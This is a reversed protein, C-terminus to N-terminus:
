PEGRKQGVTKEKERISIKDQERQGIEKKNPAEKKSVNKAEEQEKQARRQEEQMVAQQQQAQASFYQNLKQMILSTTIPMKQQMQQLRQNRYEDPMSLLELTYKEILQYPDMPTTGLEASIENIFLEAKMKMPEDQMVKNARAQYKASIMMAQGEAEAIKAKEIIQLDLAEARSKRIAQIEENYDYGFDDLLRADSLKGMSNLNMALQKSESDDSMKFRKFYVRIPPLGLFTNLKKILFFNLFDELLERYNLFHNEVIRLSISSGTWSTGGKIFELPVGMSNIIIEEQFRLEPTAMLMRANGGMEQYQIPIPMVAIYNPDHKWKKLTSEIESKWKGLSLQSFPDLVTNAPSVVKKPVLHENIIAENGRRLLQLYYIDKIAPLIMPKGWGMDEEALSPYKLHYLNDNDLQIKKKKKLSELFILPIDALVSRDNSLIKSKLKQPIDYYYLCRGTLPNYDITINEPALRVLRFNEIASIPRDTANLGVKTTKCKPCTGIFSFGKLSVDKFEDFVSEYKCHTCQLFRKEKMMVTIFSNGYTFYDLGVEILFSKIHLHENFISDYKKKIEKSINSEYLIDTIPYETLKTIVNRLFGNTYYYDRCFKFLTKINKPVYNNALDFFPNPYKAYSSNGINMSNLLDETLPNVPM